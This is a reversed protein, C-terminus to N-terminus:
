SSYREFREINTKYHSGYYLSDSKTQFDGIRIKKGAELVYINLYVGPKLMEDLHYLVANNNMESIASTRDLGTNNSNKWEVRCPVGEKVLQYQETMIGLENVEKKREYSDYYQYHIQKMANKLRSLASQITM